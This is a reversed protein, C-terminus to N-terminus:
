RPAPSTRAWATAPASASLSSCTATTEQTSPTTCPTPPRFGVSRTSSRLTPLTTRTATPRYSTCRCYLRCTPLSFTDALRPETCQIGRCKPLPLPASAKKRWWICVGEPVFKGEVVAGPSVRPPTEVAPPYLRMAESLCASLYPLRAASKSTIEKETEFANRVEETLLQVLDERKGMLFFFGSLASATTESGAGILLPANIVQEEHTMGYEGDRNKRTMYTMFDRRGDIEGQAIRADAKTESLEDSEKKSRLFKRGVLIPFIPTLIPYFLTFRAMASGRIGELLTRIWPHYDNRTLSGFPEGFTLDGIIDFAMFNFWNVLNVKKGQRANESLKDLLLGVYHLMIGQQEALATESFAHGLHRRQRRHTDRPAGVLLKDNHIGFHGPLKGFEAKGAQHSYIQPWAISGDISLHDPGIRVIPGYQRHLGRVRRVWTGNIHNEWKQPVATIAFRKPGPFVSLPHFCVRYVATAAVFAVFKPRLM